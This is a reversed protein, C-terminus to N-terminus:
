HRQGRVVIGTIGAVVGAALVILGAHFAIYNARYHGYGLLLIGALLIVAIVVPVPGTKAFRKNM